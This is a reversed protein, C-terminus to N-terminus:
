SQVHSGELKPSSAPRGACGSGSAPILTTYDLEINAEAAGGRLLRQPYGLLKEDIISRVVDAGLWDRFGAPSSAAVALAELLSSKGSNNRGTVITIPALKLEAREV